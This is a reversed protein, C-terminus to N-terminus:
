SVIGFWKTGTLSHCTPKHSPANILHRKMKYRQMLILFPAGTQIWLCVYYCYFFHFYLNHFVVCNAHPAVHFISMLKNKFSLNFYCVYPFTFYLHCIACIYTQLESLYCYIFFHETCMHDKNKYVYQTLQQIHAYLTTRFIM